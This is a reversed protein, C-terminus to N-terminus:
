RKWFKEPGAESVIASILVNTDLVISPVSM